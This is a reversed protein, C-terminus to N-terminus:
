DGTEHQTAHKRKGIGEGAMRRRRRRRKKTRERPIM